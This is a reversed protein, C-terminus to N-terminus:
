QVTSPTMAAADDLGMARRLRVSDSHPLREMGRGVDTPCRRWLEQLLGVVAAELDTDGSGTGIASCVRPMEEAHPLLQEPQLQLLYGFVASNEEFDETLPLAPLLLALLQPPPVPTLGRGM